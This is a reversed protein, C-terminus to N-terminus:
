WTEFRTEFLRQTLGSKKPVEADGVVLQMDVFM